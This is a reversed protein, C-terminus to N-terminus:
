KAEGKNASDTSFGMTYKQEVEIKNVCVTNELSVCYKYRSKDPPVVYRAPRKKTLESVITAYTGNCADIVINTGNRYIIQIKEM